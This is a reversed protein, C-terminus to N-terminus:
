HCAMSSTRVKAAAVFAQGRDQVANLEDAHASVDAHFQQMNDRYKKMKRRSMPVKKLRKKDAEAATLWKQFPEKEAAYSSLKDKGDKVWELRQQIQVAGSLVSWPPCLTLTCVYTRIHM